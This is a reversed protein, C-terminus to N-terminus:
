VLQAWPQLVPASVRDPEHNPWGVTVVELDDLNRVGDLREGTAGGRWSGPTCFSASMRPIAPHLERNPMSTNAIVPLNATPDGGPDGTELIASSAQGLLRLVDDVHLAARNQGSVQLGRVRTVRPRHLVAHRLCAVVDTVGAGVLVDRVPVVGTLVPAEVGGVAANVQVDVTSASFLRPVGSAGDM